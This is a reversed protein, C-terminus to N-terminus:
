RADGPMAMEGLLDRLVGWQQHIGVDMRGLRLTMVCGGGPMDSATLAVAALGSRSAFAALADEDPFDQRSLEIGLLAAKDIKGMQARVIRSLLGARDDADGLVIELCEQALLPALRELSQLSAALESQARNMATELLVLREAQLDQAEALGAKRGDEMGEERARIVDGHLNEITKDRQNLDAELAAIRRRLREREEDQKTMAATLAALPRVQTLGNANESKIIGSM